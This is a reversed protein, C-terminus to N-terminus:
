GVPKPLVIEEFLSRAYRDTMLSLHDIVIQSLAPRDDAPYMKTIFHHLEQVHLPDQAAVRGWQSQSKGELERREADFITTLM